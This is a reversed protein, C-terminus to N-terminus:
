LSNGRETELYSIVMSAIKFVIADEFVRLDLGTTKQIQELRYLLTNRHMHLQRATEAINLNNKFFANVVHLLDDDQTYPISDGYIEHLFNECRSVPLGYILQGIGLKSCPYINQESNFINGIKLATCTDRFRDPVEELRTFLQSYAIRVSVLAETNLTDSIMYTTQRVLDPSDKKKRTQLIAIRHLDVPILFSDSRSPFLNKLIETTLEEVPNNTELLFLIRPEESHIHFRGAMDRIDHVPIHGQILEQLFFAKDYKNKYASCLLRIQESAQEMEAPTDAHVDLSLGTIRKLENLSKELEPTYEMNYFRM